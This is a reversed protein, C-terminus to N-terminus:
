AHKRWPSRALIARRVLPRLVLMAARSLRLRRRVDDLHEAHTRRQYDFLAQSETTDLWDTPFPRTAFAAEPLAGIGAARLSGQIVDRALVQCRPGGGINFVRRTAEPSVIARAIARACDEAALVELRTALPVDFMM